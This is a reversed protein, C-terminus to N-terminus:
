TMGTRILSAVPQDLDSVGPRLLESLLDAGPADESMSPRTELRYRQIVERVTLYDLPLAPLYGNASQGLIGVAELTELASQVYQPESHLCRTVMPEPSPGLGAAYREAVVMLCQVGFLADAHRRAGREGELRRLEQDILDERRQFVYALEVGFLVIMWLTYLWLLTVPVLWIAGYIRAATDGAGFLTVYANFAIKAIEFATASVFGGLLAASWRVETDPLTRIGGVFAVTTIIVPMALGTWNRGLEADVITSYHFGWAILLPALTLTTYYQIFRSTWARRPRTNWLTNYADEVSFYIRSSTLLVGLVGVVGLKGFDVASTWVDLQAGVENVSGALFASLVSKYVSDGLGFPRSLSAVVVLVPVIASLTWFSLTAARVPIQDRVAERLFAACLYIARRAQLGPVRPTAWRLLRDLRETM